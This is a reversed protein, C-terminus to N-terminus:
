QKGYVLTSTVKGKYPKDNTFNKSLEVVGTLVTM